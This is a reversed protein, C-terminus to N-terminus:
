GWWRGFVSIAFFPQSSLDLILWGLFFIVDCHWSANRLSSKSQSGWGNVFALGHFM